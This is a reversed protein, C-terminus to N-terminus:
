KKSKFYNDLIQYFVVLDEDSIIFTENIDPSFSWIYNISNYQMVHYSHEIISESTCQIMERTTLIYFLEWDKDDICLIREFNEDNM